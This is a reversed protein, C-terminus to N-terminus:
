RRGADRRLRGDWVERAEGGLWSTVRDHPLDFLVECFRLDGPGLARGRTRELSARIADDGVAGRLWRISAVTGHALVRAIVYDRHLGLDVGGPDSDWFLPRMGEPIRAREAMGENDRFGARPPTPKVTPHMAETIAVLVTRPM